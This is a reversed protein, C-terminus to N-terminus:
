LWHSMNARVQSAEALLAIPFDVGMMEWGLRWLLRWAGPALSEGIYM